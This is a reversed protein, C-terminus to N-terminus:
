RVGPVRPVDPIHRAIVHLQDKFDDMRSALVDIRAKLSGFGQQITTQTQLIQEQLQKREARALDQEKQLAEIKNDRVDASRLDGMYSSATGGVIAVVLGAIVGLVWKLTGSMAM